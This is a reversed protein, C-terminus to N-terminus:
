DIVWDSLIAGCSKVYDLQSPDLKASRLDVLYFDVGTLNAGRLDAGRLNAKRIDEPSKFNQEHFDDTYFGTKSGECAYPSFVLGGRSSGMHFSVGRLDASRLDTDEWDIDALGANTLHTWRLDAAHMRSGTLHAGCLIAHKLNAGDWAVNELMAKSLSARELSAGDFCCSTLDLGDLHALQLNAETFDSEILRAGAFAAGSLDTGRFSTRVIRAQMLSAGALSAGDFNVGDLEADEFVACNLNAMQFRAGSADAHALSVGGILKAHQFDANKLSASFLTAGALTARTLNANNLSAKSLDAGSLDIGPWCIHNLTAEQLNAEQMIERPRWSNDIAILITAAAAHFLRDAKRTLLFELQKIVKRDSRLADAVLPLLDDPLRRRLVQQGRPSRLQEVVHECALLFQVPESNLFRRQEASDVSEQVPLPLGETMEDDNMARWAHGRLGLMIEPPLKMDQLHCAIASRVNPLTKDNALRDLVIVWLLPLGNCLSDDRLRSMVSGCAAPHRALLYEVLEDRGWPALRYTQRWEVTSSCAAAITLPAGYDESGADQPPWDESDIFRFCPQRKSQMGPTAALHRLATTKGSGSPGILVLVEKGGRTLLADVVDDLPRAVGDSGIVRPRVIAQVPEVM